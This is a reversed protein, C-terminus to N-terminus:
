LGEPLAGETEVGLAEALDLFSREVARRFVSLDPLLNYDAVFGWNLKGDYSFLAIAIGMNELLPAMPFMNVLRAGLMFLPFQPGPVNTIITNTQSGASQAGLSLLVPPTWEAVQMMMEVGLASQSDKLKQTVEHIAGLRDLPAAEGLPLRVMWSSVRNGLAGQEEERRMSVPASARFHIAAPDVNRLQMYERFAGAATTLVVDNVTCSGARRLAKVDELAFTIWDFRRHPGLPGNIPTDSPPDFAQGVLEGLAKARIGLEARLDETEERLARFGRIAAMPMRIRHGLEDRLLEGPSPAPRPIYRQPEPPEKEPEVSMLLQALDVGSAGDIMCHHIKTIMAFREGGELGEAIWMEWLPRERDLQQAMIRGALQKLQGLDGPRPLSTHRVHYDLNFDSDDVWVPNGTVPVWQLKQRYRPIKHLVGEVAARLKPFDVGGEVTTLDGIDFISLGSIHMHATPTEGVLFTNDQASLRDYRYSPM